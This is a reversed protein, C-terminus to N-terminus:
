KCTCCHYEQWMTPSESSSIGKTLVHAPSLVLLFVQATTLGTFSFMGAFFSLAMLLRCKSPVCARSYSRTIGLLISLFTANGDPQGPQTETEWGLQPCEGIQHLIFSWDRDQNIKTLEDYLKQRVSQM